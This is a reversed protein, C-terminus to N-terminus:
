DRAPRPAGEPAGPKDGTFMAWVLNERHVLGTHVVGLLHLLVLALAVDTSWGHVAGIADTYLFLTTDALPGARNEAADLAVGSLTITLLTALLLLIMVGGAPNHGLSRPPAGRVLAGLYALVARPGRVFDAFRAHRSGAFGWLIRV